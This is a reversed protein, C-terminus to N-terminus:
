CLVAKDVPVFQMVGDPRMVRYFEVPGQGFNFTRRDLITAIVQNPKGYNLILQNSNM